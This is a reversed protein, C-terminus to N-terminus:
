HRRPHAEGDTEEWEPWLHNEAHRTAQNEIYETVRTLHSRSISFAGYGEQWAFGEGDPLLRNISRSSAGKLQKAVEATSHKGAIRILLHLHDDVGGLAIPECGLHRM